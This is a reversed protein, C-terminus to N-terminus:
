FHYIQKFARYLQSIKEELEQPTKDNIICLDAREMKEAQPLQNKLRRKYEQASLRRAKLRAPLTKQDGAILVTVDVRKEWGAEFLLPLELVICPAQIKKMEAQMKKWVLPHLFAELQKRAIENEFVLKAMQAPEATGFLHKLKNRVAPQQYLQRVVEDASLVAAGLKKFCMLATSKGSAINGTLGIVLQKCAAPKTM